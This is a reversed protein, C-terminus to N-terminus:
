HIKVPQGSEASRYAASAVELARLGDLGTISPERGTRIMEVFDAVLGLDM